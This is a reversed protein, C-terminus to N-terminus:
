KKRTSFGCSTNACLVRWGSSRQCSSGAGVPRLHRLFRFGPGTLLRGGAGQHGARAGCTAGPARSSTLTLSMHTSVLSFSPHLLHPPNPSSELTLTINLIKIPGQYICKDSAGPPLALIGPRSQIYMKHWFLLRYLCCVEETIHVPLYQPSRVAPLAGLSIPPSHASPSPGM